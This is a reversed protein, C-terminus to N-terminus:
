NEQMSRYLGLFDKWQIKKKRFQLGLDILINKQIIKILKFSCGSQFFSSKM